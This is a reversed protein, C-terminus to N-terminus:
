TTICLIYYEVVAGNEFLFYWSPYSKTAKVAGVTMEVILEGFVVIHSRFPFLSLFLLFEIKRGGTLDM